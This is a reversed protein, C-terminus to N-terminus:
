LVSSVGLLVRSPRWPDWHGHAVEGAHEVTYGGFGTDSADSYVVHVAGPQRWIPQYNYQQLSLVWFQLEAAAGEDLTLWDSLCQRQNLLAYLNRTMFRAVPGVALSLSIIKGMHIIYVSFKLAVHYLNEFRNSNNTTMFNNSYQRNLEWTLGMVSGMLLKYNDLYLSQVVLLVM